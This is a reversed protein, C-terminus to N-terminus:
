VISTYYDMWDAPYNSMVGHGARKDISPHDTLLSFVVRDFGFEALANCFIQFVEEQSKAENTAIIFEEVHM